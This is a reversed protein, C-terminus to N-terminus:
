RGRFSDILNIRRQNEDHINESYAKFTQNGMVIELELPQANVEISGDIFSNIHANRDANFDALLPEFSLGKNMRGDLNGMVKDLIRVPLRKQKEMTEAISGIINVKMIDRLPGDKAPSFPLMNRIGSAVQGMKGIAWDKMDGIGNGIARVINKGAERFDTIKNTIAEVIDSLMTGINEIVSKAQNKVAVPFEMMGQIFEGLAEVVGEKVEKVFDVFTSAINAVLNAGKTILDSLMDSLGKAFADFANSMGDKVEKLFDGAWEILKAIIDMTWKIFDIVVNALTTAVENIFDSGWTVAESLFDAAWDILKNIIDASWKIFEVVIEGLKDGIITFFDRAWGRIKAKTNGIWLAIELLVGTAWTIVRQKINEFTEGFKEKMFEAWEIIIEEISEVTENIGEKIREWVAGVTEKLTEWAGAVDGDLFQNLSILLGEIFIIASDIITKIANWVITVLIRLSTWAAMLVIIVPILLLIGIKILTLVFQIVFLIIGWAHETLSSLEEWNDEFFTIIGEVKEVIYEYVEVLADWVVQIVQEWLFEWIPMVYPEIFDWLLKFEEIRKDFFEVLTDWMSMALESINEWVTSLTEKVGEWIEVAREKLKEWAQTITQMISQNETDIGFLSGIFENLKKIVYNWIVEAANRIAQWAMIVGERFAENEEWAKKIAQYLLYLATVLLAIPHRRLVGWLLRAAVILLGKAKTLLGFVGTIIAVGRSVALFIGVAKLLIGGLELWAEKNEDITTKLRDYADVVTDIVTQIFPYREIISNALELAEERFVLVSLLGATLAAAFIGIAAAVWIFTVAGVGLAVGMFILQGIFMTIIGIPILAAFFATIAVVAIGLAKGFNSVKGEADFLTEAWENMRELIPDLAGMVEIAIEKFVEGVRARFTFLQNGLRKLRGWFSEYRLIAEDALATGEEWGTNGITLADNLVDVGSTLRKLTDLMRVENIGMDRLVEDLNEGSDQLDGFGELVMSVAGIFDTDMKGQLEELSVGAIEAWKFAKDGGARVETNLQNMFKSMATGGMEARLGLSSMAAALSMTEAETMGLQNASGALRMGMDVIQSESTAFNNGLNVITSGLNEVDDVSTGMINMFRALSDAAQESSLDTAVGMDLMVRSFEQINDSGEIGLRGATEMATAIEEFSAPVERSMEHITKELDKYEQETMNTVKRIGVMSEEVDASAKVFSYMAGTLVGTIIGASMSLSRGAMDMARGNREWQETNRGLFRTQNQMPNNIRDMSRSVNNAVNNAVNSLRDIGVFRVINERVSSM